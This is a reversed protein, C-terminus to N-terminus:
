LSGTRAVLTKLSNHEAPEAEGHVVRSSAGTSLMEYVVGVIV